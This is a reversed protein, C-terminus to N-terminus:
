MASDVFAVQEMAQWCAATGELFDACRRAPQQTIRELSAADITAEAAPTTHRVVQTILWVLSGGM